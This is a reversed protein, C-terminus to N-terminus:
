NCVILQGRATLVLKLDESVGGVFEGEYTDGNPYNATAKGTYDRSSTHTQRCNAFPDTLQCTVPFLPQKKGRLTLSHTNM